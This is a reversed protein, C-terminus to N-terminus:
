LILLLKPVHHHCHECNFNNRSTRLVIFSRICKKLFYMEWVKNEFPNINGHHTLSPYLSIYVSLSSKRAMDEELLWPHCRKCWRSLEDSVGRAPQTDRSRSRNEACQRFRVAHNEDRPRRGTVYRNYRLARITSDNEQKSILVHCSALACPNVLISSFIWVM